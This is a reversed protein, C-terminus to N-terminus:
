SSPRALSLDTVHFRYAHQEWKPFRFLIRVPNCTWLSTFHLYGDRIVMSAPCPRGGMLVPRIQKVIRAPHSLVDITTFLGRLNEAVYLYRCEHDRPDFALGDLSGIALAGKLNILRNVSPRAASLDIRSLNGSYTEAVYVSKGDVPLALGNPYSFGDVALDPAAPLAGGTPFRLVRGARRYDSIWLYNGDHSLAVYNAIGLDRAFVRVARSAADIKLVSGGAFGYAAVYLDGGPDVAIGGLQIDAGSGAPDVSHVDAYTASAKGPAIQWVLGQTDGVYLNGAADFQIGEPGLFEGGPNLHELPAPLADGRGLQLTRVMVCTLLLCIAMGALLATKRWNMATNSRTEEGSARTGPRSPQTRVKDFLSGARPDRLM